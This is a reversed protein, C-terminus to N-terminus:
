VPLSRAEGPDSRRGVCTPTRLRGGVGSRGPRAGPDRQRTAAGTGLSAGTWLGDQAQGVGQDQWRLHGARSGADRGRSASSHIDEGPQWARRFPGQSAAGWGQRGMGCYERGASM